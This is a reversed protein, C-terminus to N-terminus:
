QHMYKLITRGIAKTEELLFAMDLPDADPVVNSGHGALPFQNRRIYIEEMRSWLTEDLMLGFREKQKKMKDFTMGRAKESASASEKLLSELFSAASHILQGWDEKTYANEMRQVLIPLTETQEFGDEDNEILGDEILVATFCGNENTELRFSCGAKALLTNLDDLDLENISLCYCALEAAQSADLNRFINGFVSDHWAIEEASYEGWSDSELVYISENKILFSENLIRNKRRLASYVSSSTASITAALKRALYIAAGDSLAEFELASSTKQDLYVPYEM